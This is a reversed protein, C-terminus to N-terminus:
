AEQGFPHRHHWVDEEAVSGSQIWNTTDRLYRYAAQDGALFRGLLPIFLNLYLNIIPRFISRTPPTTDLSVATGAPSLVRRQEILVPDLPHLNRVLFASVSSGFVDDKFPLNKGDAVIWRVQDGGRKERGLILMEPTFDVAVINAKPYQRLAEIALDGTGAGLDLIWHAQDGSAIRVTERRWLGDQGFTMIRNLLDYHKSIRAFM